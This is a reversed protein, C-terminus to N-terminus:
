IQGSNSSIPQLFISTLCIKFNLFELKAVNPFKGMHLNFSNNLFGFGASVCSHSKNSFIWFGVIKEPLVKTGRQFPGQV